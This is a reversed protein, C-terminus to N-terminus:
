RKKRFFERVLSSSEESLIGSVVETKPHLICEDIRSFGRRDDAAGYVIKGIQAWALAGACMVCPEMTVYLTCGKLYKGGLFDAASTIAQMEAHATVDNLTETMNHARAIIRKNCVVVAGVPIEGEDLAKHAEELAQQMYMTHDLMIRKKRSEEDKIVPPYQKVFEDLDIADEVKFDGSSIRRLATLHAGSDLARGIDRALARIYTGKSCWIKLTCKPLSFDLIEICDIVLEKAKIEVEQGQRAMRYARVGDVRVASYAPPVQMVCGMFQTLTNELRERSIHEYPFREDIETELDYSPRTAGLELEAIYVKEQAQLQDIEKTCKGTCIVVVGSALPDLTGAHGVKLKKIDLNKCIVRRVKNVLDFSTWDLPKDFILTEGKIFDM